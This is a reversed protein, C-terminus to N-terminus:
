MKEFIALQMESSIDQGVEEGVGGGLIGLIILLNLLLVYNSVILFCFVSYTM